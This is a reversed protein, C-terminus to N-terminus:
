LLWEEEETCPNADSRVIALLGTVAGHVVLPVGLFCEQSEVGLLGQLRRALTEDLPERFRQLSEEAVGYTAGLQLLGEEDALMLLAGEAELLEAARAVALRLVQDLATAYTLARSIETLKRIQEARREERSAIPPMPEAFRWEM